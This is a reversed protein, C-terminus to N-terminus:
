ELSSRNTNAEDNSHRAIQTQRTVRVIMYRTSLRIPKIHELEKLFGFEIVSNTHQIPSGSRNRIYSVERPLNHPFELFKLNNGVLYTIQRCFNAKERTQRALQLKHM